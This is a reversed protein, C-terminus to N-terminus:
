HVKPNVHVNDDVSHGTTGPLMQAAGPTTAQAYNAQKPKKARMYLVDKLYTLITDVGGGSCTVIGKCMEYQQQVTVAQEDMLRMQIVVGEHDLFTFWVYRARKAWYPEKCMSVSENSLLIEDRSIGDIEANFMQIFHENKKIAILHEAAERTHVPNSALGDWYDKKVKTPDVPSLKGRPASIPEEEKAYPDFSSAQPTRLICYCLPLGLNQACIGTYGKM